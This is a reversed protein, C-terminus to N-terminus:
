PQVEQFLFARLSQKVLWSLIMILFDSLAYIVLHRGLNKIDIGYLSLQQITASDLSDRDIVFSVGSCKGLPFSYSAPMNTLTNICFENERMHFVKQNQFEFEVRGQRYHRIDLIDRNVMPERFTDSCNFDIFILDIGPFLSYDLCTGTGECQYNILNYGDCKKFMTAEPGYWENRHQNDM